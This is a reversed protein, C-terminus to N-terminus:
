DRGHSYRLREKRTQKEVMTSVARDCIWIVAAAAISLWLWDGFVQSVSKDVFVGVLLLFVSLTTVAARRWRMGKKRVDELKAALAKLYESGYAGITGAIRNFDDEVQNVFTLTPEIHNLRQHLVLADTVYQPKRLLPSATMRPMVGMHASVRVYCPSGRPPASGGTCSTEVLIGRRDPPEAHKDSRTM